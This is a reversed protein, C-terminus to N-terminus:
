PRQLLFDKRLPHGDFGEWLLIRKLNPHGDFRIGMLDYVEREQLEAGKWVSTVSPLSPEERGYARAKLVALHNHRYSVLRYVVEFYDVYDVAQLAVLAKFDLADDDHLYRCVEAVRAGALYVERQTADAVADPFRARIAEALEAGPYHRTM